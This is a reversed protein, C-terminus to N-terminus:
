TGSNSRTDSENKQLIEKSFSFWVWFKLYRALDPCGLDFRIYVGSRVLGVWISGLNCELQLQVILDCESQKLLSVMHLESILHGPCDM